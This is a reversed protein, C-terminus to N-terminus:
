RENDKTNLNVDEFDHVKLVHESVENAGGNVQIGLGHLVSAMDRCTSELRSLDSKVKARLKEKM